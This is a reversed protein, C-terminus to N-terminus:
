FLRKLAEDIHYFLIQLCHFLHINNEQMSEVLEPCLAQSKLMNRDATRENAPQTVALM